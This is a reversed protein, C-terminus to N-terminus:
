ECKYHMNGDRDHGYWVATKASEQCHESAQRLTDFGNVAAEYDIAIKIERPSSDAVEGQPYDACAGLALLVAATLVTHKKIM